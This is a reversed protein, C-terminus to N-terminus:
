CNQQVKRYRGAETFLFAATLDNGDDSAEKSWLETLM